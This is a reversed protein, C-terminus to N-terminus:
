KKSGCFRQWKDDYSLIETATKETLKDQKNVYIPKVWTCSTDTFQIDPKDGVCGALFFCLLYKKM